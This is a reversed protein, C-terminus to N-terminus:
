SWSPTVGSYCSGRGWSIGLSEQGKGRDGPALSEWLESKKGSWKETKWIWGGFGEFEWTWVGSGEFEGPGM